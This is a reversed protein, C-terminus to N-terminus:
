ARGVSQLRFHLISRTHDARHAITITDFSELYMLSLWAWGEAYGPHKQVAVELCDRAELHEPQAFVRYYVRAKLVCNYADMDSPREAHARNIGLRSLVGYGGAIQAAVRETIEDQMELLKTGTAERDFVEAWVHTGSRSDILQATIRLRRGAAQVSGELM